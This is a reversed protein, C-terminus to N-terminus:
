YWPQKLVVTNYWYEAVHPPLAEAGTLMKWYDYPMTDGTLDYQSDINLPRNAPVVKAHQSDTIYTSNLLDALAQAIQESMAMTVLGEPKYDRNLNDVIIVKHM